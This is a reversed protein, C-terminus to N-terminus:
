GAEGLRVQCGWVRPLVGEPEREREAEGHCCGVPNEKKSQRVMAPGRELVREQEAEAHCCGKPNGKKSRRATAAGWWAGKRAGGRAAASGLSCWAASGRNKASVRWRM